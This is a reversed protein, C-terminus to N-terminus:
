KAYADILSGVYDPRAGTLEAVPRAPAVRGAEPTGYIFGYVPYSSGGLGTNDRYWVKVRSWDGRPSVDFLTVDQEAHGRKGGVRSWNAHTVMVTRDEIIRSVVAVHGLRLQDTKAFVLVAGVKPRSGRAYKGRAQDWWTWANGWIQIGSVQRAFPVCEGVYNLISTAADRPTAAVPAAPVLGLPLAACLM